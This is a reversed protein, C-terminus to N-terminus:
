YKIITKNKLHSKKLLMKIIKSTEWGSSVRKHGDNNKVVIYVQSILTLNEFNQSSFQGYSKM